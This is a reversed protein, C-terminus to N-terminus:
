VTATLSDAKHAPRCKGGMFIGPVWKECLNLWGWSRLAAPLVVDVSIKWRIPVPVRSRGAQLMTGWGVVSRRAVFIVSATMQRSLLIADNQKTIYSEEIFTWVKSVHLFIPGSNQTLSSYGSALPAILPHKWPVSHSHWENQWLLPLVCVSLTESCPVSSLTRISSLHLLRPNLFNCLPSSMTWTHSIILTVWYLSFPHYM